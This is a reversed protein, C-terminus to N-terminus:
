VCLTFRQGILIGGVGEAAQFYKVLDDSYFDAVHLKHPTLRRVDLGTRRGIKEIM